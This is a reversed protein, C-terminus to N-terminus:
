RVFFIGEADTIQLLDILTAIESAKFERINNIKNRLSQPSIGLAKAVKTKNMGSRLIYTELEIKNTM